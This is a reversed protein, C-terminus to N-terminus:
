PGLLQLIETPPNWLIYMLVRRGEHLALDHLLENLELDHVLKHHVSIEELGVLQVELM